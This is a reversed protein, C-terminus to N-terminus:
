NFYAIKTGVEKGGLKDLILIVFGIINLYNFIHSMLGSVFRIKKIYKESAAFIPLYLLFICIEGIKQLRQVLYFLFYYNRDAISGVSSKMILALPPTQAMMEARKRKRRWKRRGCKRKERRRREKLRYLYYDPNYSFNRSFIIKIGWALFHFDSSFSDFYAVNWISM